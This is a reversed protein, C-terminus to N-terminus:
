SQVDQDPDRRYSQRSQAGAEVARFGLGHLQFRDVAHLLSQGAQQSGTQKVGSATYGVFADLEDYEAALIYM